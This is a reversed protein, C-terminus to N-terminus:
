GNMGCSHQLVVEQSFADHRSWYLRLDKRALVPELPPFAQVFSARLVRMHLKVETVPPAM